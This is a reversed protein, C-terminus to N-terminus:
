RREKQELLYKEISALKTSVLNLKREMRATKDDCAKVTNNNENKLSKITKVLALFGIICTIVNSICPCLAILVTTITDINM